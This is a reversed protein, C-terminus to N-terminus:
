QCLGAHVEEAGGTSGPAELARRLVGSRRLDRAVFARTGVPLVAHGPVPGLQHFGTRATGSQAGQRGERFGRTFVAEVGTFFHQMSENNFRAYYLSLKAFYLSMSLRM